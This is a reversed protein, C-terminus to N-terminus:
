GLWMMHGMFLMCNMIYYGVNGVADKEPGYTKRFVKSESVGSKHEKRLPLYWMECRYLFPLVTKWTMVM